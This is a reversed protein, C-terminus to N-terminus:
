FLGMGFDKKRVKIAMDHMDCKILQQLTILLLGRGWGPDYHM